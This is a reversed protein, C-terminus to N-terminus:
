VCTYVSTNCLQIPLASRGLLPTVGWARTFERSCVTLSAAMNLGRSGPNGPGQAWKNPYLVEQCLKKVFPAPSM